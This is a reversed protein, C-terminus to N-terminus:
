MQPVMKEYLSDGAKSKFESHVPNYYRSLKYNSFFLVRCRTASGTKLTNPVHIHSSHKDMELEAAQYVQMAFLFLM